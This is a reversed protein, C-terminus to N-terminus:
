LQYVKLFLLNRVEDLYGDFNNKANTPSGAVTLPCDTSRVGGKFLLFWPLV